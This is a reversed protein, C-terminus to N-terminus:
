AEKEIDKGRGAECQGTRQFRYWEHDDQGLRGMSTKSNTEVVTSKEGLGSIRAGMAEM